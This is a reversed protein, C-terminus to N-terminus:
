TAADVRADAPENRLYNGNGHLIDFHQELDDIGMRESPNMNQEM